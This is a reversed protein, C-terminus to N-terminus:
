SQRLDKTQQKGKPERTIERTFYLIPAVHRQVNAPLAGIGLYHNVLQVMSLAKLTVGSETNRAVSVLLRRPVFKAM